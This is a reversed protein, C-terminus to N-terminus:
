LPFKPRTMVVTRMNIGTVFTIHINEHQLYTVVSATVDATAYM